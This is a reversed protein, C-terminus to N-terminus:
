ILRSQLSTAESSLIRCYEQLRGQPVADSFPLRIGLAGFPHAARRLVPVALAPTESIDVDSGAGTVAFGQDAIQPMLRRLRGALQVPEAHNLGKLLAEREPAKMMALLVLGFATGVLPLRRGATFEAIPPWAPVFGAVTMAYSGELVAIATPLKTLAGIRECAPQLLEVVPSSSLYTGALVIVKSTLEFQRGEVSVYGLEALTILLRRVTPKPMDARRSVDSLTMRHRGQFAELVALGRALSEVFNGKEPRQARREADSTRLRPMLDIAPRNDSSPWLFPASM